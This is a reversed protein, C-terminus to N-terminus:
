EGGGSRMAEFPNIIQIPVQIVDGGNLGETIQVTRGDNIGVKVDKKAVEGKENLYLVHANNLEDFQLAKMTITVAGTASQNLVKVEVSMGAFLETSKEIEVEATYYAISNLSASAVSAGGVSNKTIDKDVKSIKGKFEKDLADVRVIVDKGVSVSSLDYEDVKIVAKINKYDAIDMIQSGTMLTTNEDAYIETVEGSIDAKIISEGTQSEVADYAAQAQKLQAAASDISVNIQSEKTLNYNSVATEYQQKALDHQSQAQELNQASVGGEEFLSKTRQLNKVANEYSLKASNVASELQILQQKAQGNKANEYNIKALEVTAAAQDLSAESDSQDVVYLVDGANVYDGEKVKFEKIKTMKDAVINKEDFAELNGSFSYYTVIDGIKVNEETYQGVNVKPKMLFSIGTIVALCIVIILAINRKRKKKAVM